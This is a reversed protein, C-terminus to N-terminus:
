RAAAEEAPTPPLLPLEPPRAAREMEEITDKFFREMANDGTAMDRLWVGVPGFLMGLSCGNMTFLFMPWAGSVAMAYGTASGVIGGTICGVWSFDDMLAHYDGAVVPPKSDAPPPTALAPAGGWLLLALGAAVITRVM